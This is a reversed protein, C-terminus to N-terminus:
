GFCIRVSFTSNKDGKFKNDAHELFSADQKVVALVVEKDAQLKKDADQLSFNGAKIQKLAEKKDM